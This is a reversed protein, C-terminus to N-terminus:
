EPKLLVGVVEFLEGQSDKLGEVKVKKLLQQKQVLEKYVLERTVYASFGYNGPKRYRAIEP